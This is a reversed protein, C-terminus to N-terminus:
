EKLHGHRNGLRFNMGIHTDMHSVVLAADAIGVACWALVLLQNRQKLTLHQLHCQVFQNNTDRYM